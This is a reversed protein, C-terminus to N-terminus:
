RNDGSGQLVGREKRSFLKDLNEQAIEELNLGLDTALAAIYWCADGIEKKIEKKKEESFVGNSDRLVKKIKELVEGTEGGLGLAPYIIKLKQDYIATTKALDQYTKFTLGSDSM